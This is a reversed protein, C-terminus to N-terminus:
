LLILPAILQLLPLFSFILPQPSSPSPEPPRRDLIVAVREAAVAVDLVTNGAVVAEGTSSVVVICDGMAIGGVVMNGSGVGSWTSDWM